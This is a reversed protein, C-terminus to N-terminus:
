QPLTKIVKEAAKISQKTAQKLRKKMEQPLKNLVWMEEMQLAAM